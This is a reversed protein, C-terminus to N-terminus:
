IIALQGATTIKLKNQAIFGMEKLERVHNYTMGRSIGIKLTLNKVSSEGTEMEELIM